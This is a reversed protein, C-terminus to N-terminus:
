KVVQHPDRYSLEAGTSTVAVVVRRDGERVQSRLDASALVVADLVCNGGGTHGTLRLIRGGDTRDDTFDLLRTSREGTGWVAYRTGYPLRAILGSVAAVVSLEYSAGLNTSTDVVLAVSLPRRDVGFSTIERLLGNETLAVDAPSLDTVERGNDDLFSATLVRVETGPAAVPVTAFLAVFAVALM